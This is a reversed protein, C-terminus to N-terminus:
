KQFTCTKNEHVILNLTSGRGRHEKFFAQIRYTGTTLNLDKVVTEERIMKPTIPYYTKETIEFGRKGMVKKETAKRLVRKYMNGNKDIHPAYITFGAFAYRHHDNGTREKTTDRVLKEIGKLNEESMTNEGEFIITRNNPQTRNKTKTNKNTPNHTHKNKHLRINNTRKQIQISNNKNTRPNNPQTTPKTNNNHTRKNHKNDNNKRNNQNKTTTKDM